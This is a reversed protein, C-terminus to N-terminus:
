KMWTTYAIPHSKKTTNGLFWSWQMCCVSTAIWNQLCQMELKKGQKNACKPNLSSAQVIKLVDGHQHFLGRVVKDTVEVKEQKDVDFNTLNSVIEQLEDCTIGYGMSGLLHCLQVIALEENDTM